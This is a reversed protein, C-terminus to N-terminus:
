LKALDADIAKLKDAGISAYDALAQLTFDPPIMDIAGEVQPMIDPLHKVLVAKAQANKMLDLLPTEGSSFKPKAAAPAAPGAAPPQALAGTAFGAALAFAAFASVLKTM